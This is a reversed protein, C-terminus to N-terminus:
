FLDEFESSSLECLATPRISINLPHCPPEALLGLARSPLWLEKLLLKPMFFDAQRFYHHAGFDNFGGM